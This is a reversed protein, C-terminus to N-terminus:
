LHEMGIDSISICGVQFTCESLPYEFMNRNFDPSQSTMELLLNTALSLFCREIQCSYLSQLVTLMRDLTATPLRKEQSWFNRVYLQLGQNEEALGQLLTEKAANLIEVSTSDEM